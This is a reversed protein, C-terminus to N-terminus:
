IKLLQVGFSEAFGPRGEPTVTAERGALHTRTIWGLELARDLLAAGLLGALRPLARELESLAPLLPPVAADAPVGFAQPLAHGAETVEGAEDTLVV